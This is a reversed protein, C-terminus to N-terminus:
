DRGDVRPMHDGLIAEISIHNVLRQGIRELAELTLDNLSDETGDPVGTEGFKSKLMTMLLRVCAKRAAREERIEFAEQSLTVGGPAM